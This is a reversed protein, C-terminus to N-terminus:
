IKVQVTQDHSPLPLVGCALVMVLGLWLRQAATGLQTATKM